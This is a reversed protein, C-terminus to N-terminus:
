HTRVAVVNAEVRPFMPRGTLGAIAAIRNVLLLEAFAAANIALIHVVIEPIFNETGGLLVASVAFLAGEYALFAGAFSAPYVIRAGTWPYPDRRGVIWKM